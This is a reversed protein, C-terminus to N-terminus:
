GANEGDGFDETLEHESDCAAKMVLKKYRERSGAAKLM